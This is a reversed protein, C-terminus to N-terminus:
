HHECSTLDKEAISFVAGPEIKIKQVTCTRGTTDTFKADYIGPPLDGIKLREDFDVSGDKDNKCQNAGWNSTGTPALYFESITNNTLNWFRTPRQQAAAETAAAAVALIVLVIQFPKKLYM